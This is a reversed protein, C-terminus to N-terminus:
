LDVSIRWRNIKIRLAEMEELLEEPVEIDHNREAISSEILMLDTSLHIMTYPTVHVPTKFFRKLANWM